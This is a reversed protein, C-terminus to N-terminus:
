FLTESLIRSVFSISSTRGKWSCPLSTAEPERNLICDYEFAADGLITFRHSRRRGKYVLRRTDGRLTFGEDDPPVFRLGAGAWRSLGWSPQKEGMSVTLPFDAPSQLFQVGRKV